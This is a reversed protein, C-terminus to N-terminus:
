SDAGELATRRGSSRPAAPGSADSPPLAASDAPTTIPLDVAVSTGGDPRDAVTLTAGIRQAREAMTTLGYHGDRSVAGGVGDDEILLLLGTDDSHLTLWVNEADAHQRVNGLAEQAIRLVEGEVRVPMPRPSEDFSLHVRLGSRKGVERVYEALAGSLGGPADVEQRLDFISLRLESVVRTIEARLAEAAERTEEDPAGAALDDALFGLAAIEQAIGDHIDRALRSREETTALRHIEEYLAGTELQLRHDDVLRRIERTEAETWTSRGVAVLTGVPRDDQTVPVLLLRGEILPETPPGASSRAWPWPGTRRPEGMRTTLRVVIAPEAPRAPEGREASPRDRAADYWALRVTDAAAEVSALLQETPSTPSLGGPLKESVSRLDSLLRRAEVYAGHREETRRAVRFILSAALGLVTGTVLWVAVLGAPLDGGADTTSSLAATVAIALATTVTSVAGARLGAVIPPVALYGLAAAPYTAGGALLLATVLIGETVPLVRTLPVPLNLDASSYVGALLVLGLLVVGDAWEGSRFLDGLAMALAFVRAATAAPWGPPPEWPRPPADTRTM